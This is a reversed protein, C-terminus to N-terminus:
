VQEWNQSGHKHFSKYFKALAEDGWPERLVGPTGPQAM